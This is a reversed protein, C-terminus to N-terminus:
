ALQDGFAALMGDENRTTQHAKSYLTNQRYEFQVTIKNPLIMTFDYFREDNLGMPVLIGLEIRTQAKGVLHIQIRNRIIKYFEFKLPLNIKSWFQFHFEREM